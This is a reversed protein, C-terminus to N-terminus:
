NKKPARKVQVSGFLSLQLNDKGAQPVVAKQLMLYWQGSQKVALTVVQAEGKSGEVTYKFYAQKRKGTFYIGGRVSWLSVTIPKGIQQQLEQNHQANYVSQNFVKSHTVQIATYSFLGICIIWVVLGIIGWTLQARKFHTVSAWHIRQWSWRTGKLGHLVHIAIVFAFTLINLILFVADNALIPLYNIFIAKLTASIIFALFVSFGLYTRNSIGWIWTLFFGGWNWRTLKPTELTM